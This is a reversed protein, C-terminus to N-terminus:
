MGDEVPVAESPKGTDRDAVGPEGSGCGVGPTAGLNPLSPCSTSPSAGRASVSLLRGPSACWGVVSSIGLTRDLYNGGILEAAALGQSDQLKVGGTM